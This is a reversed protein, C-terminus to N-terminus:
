LLGREAFSCYTTETFIIHDQVPIGIIKSAEVLQKTIQLDETSPECNGSPHNHALIISAANRMIASRFVERPHVLSSNLIGKTIIEFASVNNNAKLHIVMFLEVPSNEFVKKFMEYIRDPSNVAKCFYEKEDDAVKIKKSIVELQNTFVVKRFLTQTTM